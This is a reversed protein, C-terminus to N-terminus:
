PLLKHEHQEYANSHDYGDVLQMPAIEGCNKWCPSDSTIIQEEEQNKM